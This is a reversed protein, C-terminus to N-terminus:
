LPPREALQKFGGMVLDTAMDALAEPAVPGEPDYWTHTWNIVGFFLMATVAGEARAALRPEITVILERVADILGRQVSVIEGRRAEPLHKLDNLLVRHRDAAGIYIAIFRHTLARLKAAASGGAVAERAAADLARVHSIMVDYLIDEKSGYYHYILSKSVGCRLALDAVSAGEFGKDAFLGAAAEVISARREDYDAAQTRAM